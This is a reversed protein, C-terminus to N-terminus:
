EIACFGSWIKCWFSKLRIRLDGDKWGHLQITQEPNVRSEIILMKVGEQDVSFTYGVLKDDSIWYNENDELLTGGSLSKPSNNLYIKGKGGKDSIVNLASDDNIVYKDDGAEDSIFNANSEGIFTDNGNGGYMTDDGSGGLMTDDGDGGYMTDNGLGGSLTNKSASGVLKDNGPGGYLSSNEIGIAQLCDNMSGGFIAAFDSRIDVPTILYKGVFESQTLSTNDMFNFTADGNGVLGYEIVSSQGSKLNITISYDTTTGKCSSEKGNDTIAYAQLYVIIGGLLLLLPCIVAKKSQKQMNM